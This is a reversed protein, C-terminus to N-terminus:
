SLFVTKVYEAERQAKQWGESDREERLKKAKNIRNEHVLRPGIQHVEGVLCALDEKSILPVHPLLHNPTLLTDMAKRREATKIWKQV